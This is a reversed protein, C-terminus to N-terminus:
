NIYKQIEEASLNFVVFPPQEDDNHPIALYNIVWERNIKTTRFMMFGSGFFADFRFAGGAHESDIKNWAVTTVDARDLVTEHREKARHGMAIPVGMGQRTQIQYDSWDSHLGSVMFLSFCNTNLSQKGSNFNERVVEPSEWFGIGKMEPTFHNKSCGALLLGILLPMIIKM